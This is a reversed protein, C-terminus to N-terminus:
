RPDQKYACDVFDRIRRFEEKKGQRSACPPSPLSCFSPGTDCGPM